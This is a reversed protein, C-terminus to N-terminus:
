FDHEQDDAWYLDYDANDYDVLSVEDENPIPYCTHCRKYGYPGSGGCRDCREYVPCELETHRPNQKRCRICVEPTWETRELLSIRDLLSMEETETAQAFASPAEPVVEDDVV